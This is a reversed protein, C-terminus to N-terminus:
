PTPQKQLIMSGLFVWHWAKEYGYTQDLARVIPWITHSGAECTRGCEGNCIRKQVELPM